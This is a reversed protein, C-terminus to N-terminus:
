RGDTSGFGGDGRDTKNDFDQVFVMKEVRIPTIILQFLCDYKYGLFTNNGVNRINLLIEGQYDSDIVGITNALELGKKGTSSRPVVLGMFGAPIEMRVGTGVKVTGGRPINVDLALKLDYGASGITALTPKLKEDACIIKLM